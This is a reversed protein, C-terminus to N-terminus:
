DQSSFLDTIYEKTPNSSSTSDTQTSQTEEELSIETFDIDQDNEPPTSISPEQILSNEKINSDAKNDLEIRSQQIQQIKLDFAHIEQELEKSLQLGEQYLQILDDLDKEDINKIEQYITELRALKKTFNNEKKTNM